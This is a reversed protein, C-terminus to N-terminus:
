RGMLFAIQSQCEAVGAQVGAEAYLAM